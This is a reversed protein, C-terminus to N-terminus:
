KTLNLQFYNQYLLNDSKSVEANDAEPDKSFDLVFILSLNNSNLVSKSSSSSLASYNVALYM